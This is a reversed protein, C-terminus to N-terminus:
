HCSGASKNLELKLKVAVFAKSKIAILLKTAIKIPIIVAAHM